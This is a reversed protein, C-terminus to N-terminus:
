GAPALHTADLCERVARALQRPHYPKQVYIFGHRLIWDQGVVDSSYGSTFMVKLAPQEAKLKTREAAVDPRDQEAAHLTKKSPSRRVIM